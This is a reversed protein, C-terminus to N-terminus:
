PSSANVIDMILYVFTALALLYLPLSGAIAGLKRADSGSTVYMISYVVRAGAHFFGVYMTIKPLILGSILLVTITMPLAEIANQHVRYCNNFDVWNKYPLKDSYRGDGCDPFGGVAPSTGPFAAEHEEKFKEMFEKTFTRDRAPKIVLPALLFCLTTVITASLLVLPYEKPLVIEWAPIATSM